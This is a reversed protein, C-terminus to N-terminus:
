KIKFKPMIVGIIVGAIAGAAVVYMGANWGAANAVATIVPPALISGSLGILCTMGFMKDALVPSGLLDLPIAGISANAVPGGAGHLLSLLIVMAFGVPALAPMLLLAVATVAYGGFAMCYARSKLPDVGKSIFYDSIMGGVPTVAVAILGNWLLATGSQASTYSYNSLFSPLCAAFGSAMWVCCFLALSSLWAGPLTWVNLNSDVKSETVTSSESPYLDKPADKAFVLYLIVIVLWVYGGHIICQRWDGYREWLWSAFFGGFGIGVSLGAGVIGSAFGRNKVPFWSATLGVNIGWIIGCGQLFRLFLVLIFSNCIQMGFTGILFLILGLSGAKKQGFRPSIYAGLVYSSLAYGVFLMSNGLQAQTETVGFFEVVSPISMSWISMNAYGVILSLFCVLFIVWRYAPAKDQTTNM